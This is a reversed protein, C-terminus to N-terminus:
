EFSKNPVERHALNFTGHQCYVSVTEARLSVTVSSRPLHFHPYKRISFCPFLYTFHSQFLFTGEPILRPMCGILM